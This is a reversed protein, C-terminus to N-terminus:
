CSRDGGCAGPALAEALFRIMARGAVKAGLANLHGGDDTYAPVLAPHVGGALEFTERRGDPHTSEVAALDFLPGSAFAARLRENYAHRRVNSADEWVMRGLARKVRSRLDDPRRTLPTTVHAFRTSPFREALGRLTREYRAFLSGVDTNPDVDVYCLKLFALDPALAPNAEFTREFFELKSAPDTNRGGSVDVLGPGPASLAEELGLTRLAGEATTRALAQMGGILDRGVSHHVFLIRASRVERLEAELTEDKTM